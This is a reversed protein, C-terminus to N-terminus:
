QSLALKAWFIRSSGMERIEHDLQGLREELTQLVEEYHSLVKEAKHKAQANSGPLNRRRQITQRLKLIQAEVQGRDEIAVQAKSSPSVELPPASATVLLDRLCPCVFGDDDPPMDPQPHVLGLLPALEDQWAALNELTTGFRNRLDRFERRLVELENKTSRMERYVRCLLEVVEVHSLLHLELHVVENRAPEASVSLQIAHQHRASHEQMRAYLPADM